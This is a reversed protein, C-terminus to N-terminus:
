YIYKNNIKNYSMEKKSKIQIFEEKPISNFNSIDKNIYYTDFYNWLTSNRAFVFGREFLLKNLEPTPREIILSLIKYKDFPFNRLIKTEAGEIDISMVDIINPVNNEKFVHELTYSDILISNQLLDNDTDNACIGGLMGNENFHIKKNTDNICKNVCLCNRNNKLKQFIKKNAEICLGKWDLIKELLYTNDRDIGDWAGINVFYGNKKYNFVTDIIWYDQAKQSIFKIMGNKNFIDQNNDKRNRPVLVSLRPNNDKYKKYLYFSCGPNFDSSYRMFIYGKEILIKNLEDSCQEITISLPLYLDIIPLIKDSDISVNVGLYHINKFNYTDINKIFNNFSINSSNRYKNFKNCLENNDIICIGKWKLMDELIYTSNNNYHHSPEIDIFIHNEEYKFIEDVLWYDIGKHSSFKKNILGRDFNIWSM